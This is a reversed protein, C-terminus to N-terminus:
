MGMWSKKMEDKIDIRKIWFFVKKGTQVRQFINIWFWMLAFLGPWQVPIFVHIEVLWMREEWCQPEGTFHFSGSM